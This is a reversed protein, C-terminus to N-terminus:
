FPGRGGYGTLEVYGQGAVTRGSATGSVRVSGEWYVVGGMHGAVLEQDRVTPALVLALGASPVSVRWAAPYRAHTRPSTWSDTADIRFADLPLHRTRGDREVLTGSSLPEVGGDKRRLRYLMLERGDDLQVSFWDWGAHTDAMRASGFEHDMWSEGTVALTDGGVRLGGRTALRTLSYYHSANGEGSAKRSVGGEGHIAPPRDQSLSLTFAFGPGGGHLEHTRGDPALRAYADELWVDYRTSDAGALGLAPRRADDASRFTGRSEDTLAAHVFVLDQVAWASTSGARLRPLGVRFFTLEYGFRRAGSALHGTYYWWETRYDPHSAHDRPFVYAFPAVALAFGDGDRPPASAAACGPPPAPLMLALSVAVAALARM